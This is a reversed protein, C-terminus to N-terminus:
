SSSAFRTNQGRAQHIAMFLIERNSKLQLKHRINTKHNHLTYISIGLEDAIQQSKKGEALLALIRSERVSLGHRVKTPCLASDFEHLLEMIAQSIYRGGSSITSLCLVLESLRLNELLYGAAHCELLQSLSFLERSLVLVCWNRPQVRHLYSTVVKAKEPQCCYLLTYEFNQAAAAKAVLPLEDFAYTVQHGKEGLYDGVFHIIKELSGPLVVLITAM